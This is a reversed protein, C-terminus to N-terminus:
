SPVIPGTGRRIRVCPPTRRRIDRAGMIHLNAAGVDKVLGHHEIKIVIIAECITKEVSLRVLERHIPEVSRPSAGVHANGSQICLVLPRQPAQRQLPADAEFMDPRLKRLHLHSGIPKNWCRYYEWCM